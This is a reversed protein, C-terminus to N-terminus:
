TAGENAAAPTVNEAPVEPAAIATEMVTVM